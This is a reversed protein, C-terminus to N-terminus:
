EKIRLRNKWRHRYLGARKQCAKSCYKRERKRWHFYVRECEKCRCFMSLSVLEIDKLLPLFYGQLEILVIREPKIAVEGDPDIVVKEGYLVISDSYAGVEPSSTTDTFIARSCSDWTLIFSVNDQATEKLLYLAEFLEKLKKQIAVLLNVVNENNFKTNILGHQTAWYGLGLFDDPVDLLTSVEFLLKKVKDPHLEEINVAQFKSLNEWRFFINSKM